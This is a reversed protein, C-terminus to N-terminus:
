FRYSLAVQGTGAPGAALDEEASVEADVALSGGLALSGDLRLGVAQTAPQGVTEEHEAGLAAVRVRYDDQVLGQTYSLGGRLRLWAGEGLRVPALEGDVGLSATAEGVAVGSYRQEGLGPDGLTFGDAAQRAYALGAWPTVTLGGGARLPVGVRQAVTGTWGAFSSRGGYGAAQHADRSYAFSTDLALAGLRQRLHAAMGDQSALGAGGPAADGRSTVVVGLRTGGPLGYEVGVGGTGGGQGEPGYAREFGARAPDAAPGPEGDGARGPRGPVRGPRPARGRGARRPRVGARGRGAGDRGHAQRARALADAVVAAGRRASASLVAQMINLRDHYAGSAGGNFVAWLRRGDASMWQTPFQVGLFDGDSMGLWRGQYDVTRWPGAMTPGEFVGLHGANVGHGDTLLFRHLGKDYTVVPGNVGKPDGFVPRAQAPNGSWTGGGALYQYAAEDGLGAVPARMLYFARPDRSGPRIATMYAYGGPAGANGSGFQVFSMPRLDPGSFTWDPKRWTRGGDASRWVAFDGNPWGGKQLFTIGYLAPGAALLSVIKGQGQGAPGCGTTGLGRGPDRLVATGYSVYRGCGIAGDGWATYLQGGAGATVPWIDGGLGGFRYTATDWTIRLDGWPYPPAAEARASHAVLAALAATALLLRRM